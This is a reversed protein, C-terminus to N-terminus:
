FKLEQWDSMKYTRPFIQPYLIESLIEVGDIIRPGPRTLYANGDMLFVQPRDVSKQRDVIIHRLDNIISKEKLTRKINFGCPAFVITDLDAEVIQDVSIPYSKHGIYTKVAIGGARKIMEPMWHGANMLPDLWEIILVRPRGDRALSDLGRVQDRPRLGSKVKALREQLGAVIGGSEEGKDCTEGILLINELIGGISEPELSIIKADGDLVRAAKKVESYSVACVKCLDQTLILNPKLKKVVEQDLHSVSMGMHGLARVKEDIERSSLGQALCETVKPLKRARLPYDCDDTVGVLYEELGLLYIIETAAPLLSLIRLDQM